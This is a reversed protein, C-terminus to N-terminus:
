VLKSKGLLKYTKLLLSLKKYSYGTRNATPLRSELLELM